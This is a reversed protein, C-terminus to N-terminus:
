TLDVERDFKIIMQRLLETSETKWEIKKDNCLCYDVVPKIKCLDASKLLDQEMLTDLIWNLLEHMMHAKHEKEIKM